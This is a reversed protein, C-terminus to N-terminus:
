VRLSRRVIQSFDYLGPYGHSTGRTSPPMICGAVISVSSRSVAFARRRSAFTPSLLEVAVADLAEQRLNDLDVPMYRRQLRHRQARQAYQVSHRQADVDNAPCRGPSTVHVGLMRNLLDVTQQLLSFTVM